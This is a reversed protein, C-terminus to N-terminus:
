APRLDRGLATLAVEWLAYLLAVVNEEHRAAGSLQLWNRPLSSVRARVVGEGAPACTLTIREGWSARSPWISAEADRHFVTSSAASQSSDLKWGLEAGIEGVHERLSTPTGPLLQAGVRGRPWRGAPALRVFSCAEHWTARDDSDLGEGEAHYLVAFRDGLVQELEDRLRLGESRFAAATEASEFDSQRPDDVHVTADYERTWSELREVLTGPLPLRAPDVNDVGLAAPRWLPHCGYDAM